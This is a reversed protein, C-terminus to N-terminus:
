LFDSLDNLVENMNQYRRDPDNETAKILLDKLKAPISMGDSKLKHRYFHIREGSDLKKAIAEDLSIGFSYIDSRIDSKGIRQEPAVYQDTGGHSSLDRQWWRKPLKALGFDTIKVIKRDNSILINEPKVDKHVIGYGHIYELGKGAEYFIRLIENISFIEDSALVEKLNKGDVYEMFMAYVRDELDYVKFDHVKVINKNDFKMAIKAEREFEKIISNREQIRWDNLIKIAVVDGYPSNEFPKAWRARYVRSYGGSGIMKEIFYDSLSVRGEFKMMKKM